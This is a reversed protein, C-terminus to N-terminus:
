LSLSELHLEWSGTREAKIFLRLIQVMKTYQIWLASLFSQEKLSVKTAEVSERISEWVGEDSVIKWSKEKKM